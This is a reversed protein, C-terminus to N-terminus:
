IEGERMARIPWFKVVKGVDDACGTRGFLYLMWRFWNRDGRLYLFQTIGFHVDIKPKFDWFLVM